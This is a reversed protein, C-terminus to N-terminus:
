GDGSASLDAGLDFNSGLPVLFIAAHDEYGRNGAFPPPPPPTPTPWPNKRQIDYDDVVLTVTSPARVGHRGTFVFGYVGPALSLTRASAITAELRATFDDERMRMVDVPSSPAITVTSTAYVYIAIRQDM